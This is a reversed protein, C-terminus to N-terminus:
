YKIYMRMTLAPPQVTTSAGYISNARSADFQIRQAEKTARHEHYGSVSVGPEYFAGSLGANDRRAFTGLINPLGAAKVTGATGNGM